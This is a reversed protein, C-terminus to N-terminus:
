LLGTLSPSVRCRKFYKVPKNSLMKKIAKSAALNNWTWESVQEWGLGTRKRIEVNAM